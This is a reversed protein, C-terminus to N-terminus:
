SVDDGFLESTHPLSHTCVHAYENRMESKLLDRELLNLQRNAHGLLALADNCGDILPGIDSGSQKAQSEM